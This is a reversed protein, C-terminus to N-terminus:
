RAVTTYFANNGSRLDKGYSFTVGVGLVRVKAQAGADCLWKKSGLVAVSDTIKGTDVLPGLKLSIFGNSYINKDIQWNSLFYDRGLPASGKRGDRTGVHGRLWLDNDRELGLMLLEDFPIQGFTKGVRVRWLTEFDDGRSKPLWHTELSGQIRAFSEAPQSWLRGAQSGASSSITIRREPSRWLEYGLQATQKLQYGPALLEPTLATGPFVNRYDRHSIEAGLSWSWRWGILRNIEASFEERRLNLAALLQAPGTFSPVINWNENRAGARLHLRWRPDHAIPSSLAAVYGRKDADWRLQFVLNVASHNLNLYEPDIEQFPLGRLSRLLAETTTNGFGNLEQARFVADFKGDPEATLDFRYSPFIELHRVRADTTRFEDLLLPSEPAVALAHDLLGPRVRLAPEIRVQAIQPKNVANWYKVAAELNGQLFYLTALFENAYDDKPDLRLARRLYSIAQLNNKERFAVGALEILFRKDRPAVRSGAKFAARAEDWFELQALALGYQYEFEAYDATPSVKSGPAALALWREHQSRPDDSPIAKVQARVPLPCFVFL